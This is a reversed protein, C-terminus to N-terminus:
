FTFAVGGRISRQGQAFFLVSGDNLIYPHYGEALLNTVELLAEINGAGDRSQHLSQGFQVNLYPALVNMAYPAVTTVTDDPQWRYSAQWKTGTGDLTGSLSIAYSQVRRPHFAAILEPLPAAQPTAPMALAQGNAYSVLVHNSGPLRREFTAQIGTTSFNSGAFHMLGSTRDFLAGTQALGNGAIHGSAEIVPNDVTDAYVLFAVGSADSQREWGIEQHLGHEMELKGNRASFEPLSAQSDRAYANQIMTAMRYRVANDGDRWEVNAYPLAKTVTQGSPANASLGQMRGLVQSSGVEADIDPGFHLTEATSLAAEDLGENGSSEVEPHIAVAAMSQVSGAFGLDQRFGLMSEINADTGPAFEVRALLERSNSPTDEVTASFREGSEGFTGAQGSAMIRAKLKPASGSGDSVVVLPGDELWRLLPRNAASRLTWAWDDQEADKARSEAPLWQMVEYLTDLTLNVVTAGGRLRLNERLSPLFSANMAKLAYPGPLISAIAFRGKGNTYVSAVVTLDPRLLQVEAGIQPVGATDRVVGSVTASAAWSVPAAALVILVTLAALHTCCKKQM